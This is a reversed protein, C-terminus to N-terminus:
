KLLDWITKENKRVNSVRKYEYLSSELVSIDSFYSKVFSVSKVQKMKLVVKCYENPSMNKKKKFDKYKRENCIILMEIEPATIVNIVDVKNQYAKSIKFNERRSDLIRYVTIKGDFERRLYKEEFDKGKRSELIEEELLENRAFILKDHDLLLDLIVREAGGECICATYKVM